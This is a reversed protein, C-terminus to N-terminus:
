VTTSLPFMAALYDLVPQADAPQSRFAIYGDPRVLYLAEASVGYRRHVDRDPDLLVELGELGGPRRDRPVVVHVHVDDELVAEVRRATTRLRDYGNETMAAGDFLLLTFHVGRFLDFLRIPADTGELRGTADAARDGARPGRRFRVSDVVGAGEGDGRLSVAGLEKALSSNRYGVDLEAVNDLVAKRVAPVQLAPMLVRDRLFTMVPNPSFFASHGIDSSKLVARAVPMREEYYTDLLRHGARGRLIADLKWGLNYADQIGTNM